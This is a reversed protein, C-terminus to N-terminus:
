TWLVHEGQSRLLVEEGTGFPCPGISLIPNSHVMYVENGVRSCKEQIKPLLEKLDDTTLSFGEAISPASGSYILSNCGFTKVGLEHLFEMIDLFSDANYTNLTTNTTIYIPTPVVNKVGEVMDRWSGDTATISEHIAPHHSELTVQVFDLGAEGLKQVYEKDKLRRDNTILGTVTGKEQSYSLLEPLDERLTPEGGTFTILFIGAHHLRDFVRKWQDTTLEPTEYPGGTYCHLCNNQCRFTLALNTHAIQVTISEM